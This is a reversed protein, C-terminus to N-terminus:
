MKFCQYELMALLIHIYITTTSGWRGAARQCSGVGERPWGLKEGCVALHDEERVPDTWFQEITLDTPVDPCDFLHRTDHPQTKCLPCLEDPYNDEDIKHLYTMLLPFKHTRLQSLRRRIQRLLTQEDPNIDPALRNLLKNNPKNDLHSQVITTHITNKNANIAEPNANILDLDVNTTYNNNNNFITQKM